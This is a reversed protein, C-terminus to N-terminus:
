EWGDSINFSMISLRPVDPPPECGEEDSEDSAMQQPRLSRYRPPMDTPYRKKPAPPPTNFSLRRTRTPTTYMPDRTTTSSHASM